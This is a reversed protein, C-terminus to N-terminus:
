AGENFPSLVARAGFVMIREGVLGGIFLEEYDEHVEIDIWLHDDGWTMTITGYPEAEMNGPLLGYPNYELLRRARQVVLDSLPLAGNGDWDFVGHKEVFEEFQKLNM